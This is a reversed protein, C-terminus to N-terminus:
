HTNKQRLFIYRKVVNAGGSLELLSTDVIGQRKELLRSINLKDFDSCSADKMFSASILSKYKKSASSM